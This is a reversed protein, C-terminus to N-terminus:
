GRKYAGSSPHASSRFAVHQPWFGAGRNPWLPGLGAGGQEPVPFRSLHRGAEARSLAGSKFHPCAGRAPVRAKFTCRIYDTHRIAASKKRWGPVGERALICLRLGWGFERTVRRTVVGQQKPDHWPRIVPHPNCCNRVSVRSMGVPHPPAILMQQMTSCRTISLVIRCQM